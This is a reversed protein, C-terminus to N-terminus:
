PLASTDNEQGTGEAQARTDRLTEAAAQHHPDDDQFLTDADIPGEQREHKHSKTCANKLAQLKQHTERTQTCRRKQYAIKDPNTSTTTCTGM